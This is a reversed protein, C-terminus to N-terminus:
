YFDLHVYMIWFV